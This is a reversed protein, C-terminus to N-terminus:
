RSRPAPPRLATPPRHIPSTACPRGRSLQQLLLVAPPLPAGPPAHRLLAGAADRAQCASACVSCSAPPATRHPATRHPATRHPATRPPAAAACRSSTTPSPSRRPPAPTCCGPCSWWRTLASRLRPGAARWSTWCCRCGTACRCPPPASSPQAPESPRCCHYVVAHVGARRCHLAAGAPPLPPPLPPLVRRRRGVEVAGGLVRVCDLMCRAVEADEDGIAVCLAPLLAPLHPQAAGGALLLMTRLTRAACSRLSVTWEGLERIATPLLAPLLRAVLASSGARGGQQGPEAPEAEMPAPAAADSPAGAESPAAAPRAAAEGGGGGGPALAAGAADLARWAAAAVAEQEDSTGLLLLPLLAPAYAEAVGLPVAHAGSAAAGGGGGLWSACTALLAERVAPARDVALPRLAPAVTAQMAGAPLGAAALAQLAALAASRVRSHPHGLGPLLAALLREAQAELAGAPLRGALQGLIAAGAKRIEHYGDELARCLLACLEPVYGGLAAPPLRAVLAGALGVLALRCEESPEAVPLAGMRRALAPLLAGCADSVDPAAEAAQAFAHLAAARCAEAVDGLLALLPHLLPGCVLCQLLAPSPKPAAADGRCLRANLAAAAQRRTARDPDSLCNVTRQVTAMFAAIEEPSVGAKAPDYRAQKRAAESAQQQDEEGLPAPQRAPEPARPAIRARSSIGPIGSLSSSGGRPAARANLEKWIDDVSKKQAAM